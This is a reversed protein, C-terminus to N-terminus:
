RHWGGLNREDSGLAEGMTAPANRSSHLACPSSRSSERITSRSRRTITHPQCPPTATYRSATEGRTTMAHRSRHRSWGTTSVPASNADGEPAGSPYSRPLGTPSTSGPGASGRAGTSRTACLPSRTAVCTARTLTARLVDARALDSTPGHAAQARLEATIGPTASAYARTRTRHRAARQQRRGLHRDLDRSTRDSRHARVRGTPVSPRTRSPRTDHPTSSVRQPHM